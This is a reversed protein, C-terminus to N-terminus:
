VAAKIRGVKVAKQLAAHDRETQEAYDEAFRTLAEDFSDNSGLYGAIMASDGSRAHALALAWGCAEAYYALDAADMMEVAMSVKMDRLQRIYFDRHRELGVTWGLFIDGAAQMLRQGVVVREGHTAFSSPGAYRELVSARAEKVQLFLPDNNAAMFLAVACFTGVSGVGVVKIAMDCYEFRDFLVRYQARLSERYRRFAHEVQRRYITRQRGTEHFLLPSHDKILPRKGKRRVLTPFMHDAVSNGRAKDIEKSTLERDKHEPIKRVLPEFNIRQYWVDLVRMGAYGAMHERYSRAAAQVARERDKSKFDASRGALEVSAVLRKLDWEWPAPLTEDFDNIDFILNREPTAFAGFNMIHCDGCAQVRVGTIPTRALDSAMVAAAGRFFAFPSKLMRGYRIPLLAPILGRSSDILLGIPDPRRAPAKWGLHSKRPVRERLERGAEIREAPSRFGAAGAEHGKGSRSTKSWRRAMARM